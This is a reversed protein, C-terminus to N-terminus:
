ASIPYAEAGSMPLPCEYLAHRDRASSLEAENEGRASWRCNPCLFVTEHAEM